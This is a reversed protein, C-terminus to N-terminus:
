SNSGDRKLIEELLEEPHLSKGIVRPSFFEIHSVGLRILANVLNKKDELDFRYKRSDFLLPSQQGERLTTDIIGKFAM